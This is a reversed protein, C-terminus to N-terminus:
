EVYSIILQNKEIGFYAYDKIQSIEDYTGASKIINVIKDLDGISEAGIIDKPKFSGISINSNYNMTHPPLDLYTLDKRIEDDINRGCCNAMNGESSMDQTGSADKLEKELDFEMNWSATIWRDKVRGTNTWKNDKLLWLYGKYDLIITPNDYSSDLLLVSCSISNYPEDDIAIDIRYEHTSYLDNDADRNVTIINGSKYINDYLLKGNNEDDMWFDLIKGRNVDLRCELIELNSSNAKTGRYLRGGQTLIYISDGIVQIRKIKDRPILIIFDVNEILKNGYDYTANSVIVCINYGEYGKNNLIDDSRHTNFIVWTDNEDMIPYIDQPKISYPLSGYVGWTSGSTNTKGIINGSGTFVTAYIENKWPVNDIVQGNKTTSTFPLAWASDIMEQLAVGDKVKIIRFVGADSKVYYYGEWFWIHQFNHIEDSIPRPNNWQCVWGSGFKTSIFYDRHKGDMDDPALRIDGHWFPVQGKEAPNTIPHHNGLMTIMLIGNKCEISALGDRRNIFYSNYILIDELNTDTYNIAERSSLTPTFKQAEAKYLLGGLQTDPLYPKQIFSKGDYWILFQTIDLYAPDDTWVEEYTGTPNGQSDLIRRISKKGWHFKDDSVINYDRVIKPDVLNYILNSDDKLTYNAVGDVITQEYLQNVQPDNKKRWDSINSVNDLTIIPPIPAVNGKINLVTKGVIGYPRYDALPILQEAWERKQKYKADEPNANFISLQQLLQSLQSQLTTSEISGPISAYLQQRIDAIANELQELQSQGSDDQNIIDTDIYHVLCKMGGISKRSTQIGHRGVVEGSSRYGRAWSFDWNTRNSIGRYEGIGVYNTEPDIQNEPPLKYYAMGEQIMNGWMYTNFQWIYPKLINVKNLEELKTQKDKIQEELISIERQFFLWQCYDTSCESYPGPHDQKWADFDANKASLELELEAIENLVIEDEKLFKWSEREWEKIQKRIPTIYTYLQEIIITLSDIASLLALGEDSSAFDPNNYSKQRFETQLIVRENIANDYDTGRTGLEDQLERLKDSICEKDIKCLESQLEKIWDKIANTQLNGESLTTIENSIDRVRVQLIAIENVIGQGFTSIKQNGDLQDYTLQLSNIRVITASREDELLKIENNVLGELYELRIELEEIKEEIEGRRKEIALLREELEEQLNRKVVEDPYDPLPAYQKVPERVLLGHTFTDYKYKYAFANEIVKDAKDPEQRVNLDTNNTRGSSIWIDDGLQAEKGYGCVWPDDITIVDSLGSKSWEGEGEAWIKKPPQIPYDIIKINAWRNVCDFYVGNNMIANINGWLGDKIVHQDDGEGVTSTIGTYGTYYSGGHKIWEKEANPDDNPIEICTVDTREWYFELYKPTFCFHYPDSIIIRTLQPPISLELKKDTVSWPINEGNGGPNDGNNGNNGDALEGFPDGDNWAYNIWGDMNPPIDQGGRQETITGKLLISPLGHEIELFPYPSFFCTSGGYPNEIISYLECPGLSRITHRSIGQRLYSAKGSPHDSWRDYKHLVSIDDFRSTIMEQYCVWNWWLMGTEDDVYFWLKGRNGTLHNLREQVENIANLTADDINGENVQLYDKISQIFDSSDIATIDIGIKDAVMRAANGFEEEWLPVRNESIALAENINGDNPIGSFIGYVEDGFPSHIPTLYTSTPTCICESCCNGRIPSWSEQCDQSMEILGDM